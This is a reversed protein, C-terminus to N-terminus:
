AIGALMLVGVVAGMAGLARPALRFAQKRGLVGLAVGIGHLALTAAVFGLVYTAASGSAPMEVGHAHGHFLGFLATIAFGASAPVKPAFLLALGLVAVSGAIGIEMVPLGTGAIGVLAGVVLAGVFALPLQWMAKGGIQAGWLGVGIMALVHDLGSFPHAAGNSFTAELGHGPHASAGTAILATLAAAALALFKRQFM